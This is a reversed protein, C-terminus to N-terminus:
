AYFWKYGKHQSRKGKLVFQINGQNFGDRAADAQSAFYIKEGTKISIAYIAVSNKNEIGLRPKQLGNNIAHIINESHTCSELNCLRNDHKIGNKHNIELGDGIQGIFTSYVIRHSRFTFQKGKKYLRIHLYGKENKPQKLLKGNRSFEGDINCLYNEFNPISKWM